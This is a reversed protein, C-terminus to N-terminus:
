EDMEVSDVELCRECFVYMIINYVGTTTPYKESYGLRWIHKCNNKMNIIDKDTMELYKQKHKKM